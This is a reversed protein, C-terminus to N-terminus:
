PVIQYELYISEDDRDYETFGCRQYFGIAGLGRLILTRAADQDGRQFSRLDSTHDM